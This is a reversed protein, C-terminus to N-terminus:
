RRIICDVGNTFTLERILLPPTRPSADTTDLLAQFAFRSGVLAPDMPIGVRWTTPGMAVQKGLIEVVSRVMLKGVLGPIRVPAHFKTGVLLLYRANPQRSFQDGHIELRVTGGLAFVNKSGTALRDSRITLTPTWGCFLRMQVPGQMTTTARNSNSAGQGVTYKFAPLDTRGPNGSTAMTVTGSSVPKAVKRIDIVLNSTGDFTLRQFGGFLRLWTWQGAKWDVRFNKRYLMTEPYPLNKDFDDSLANASTNGMTIHLFVYDIPVSAQAVFGIRDIYGGGNTPLYSAPILQQFRSEVFKGNADSGLPIPSGTSHTVTDQPYTIPGSSDCSVATCALLVWAVRSRAPCRSSVRYSRSHPTAVAAALRPLPSMPNQM